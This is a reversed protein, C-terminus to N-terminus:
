HMYSFGLNFGVGSDCYNVLKERDKKRPPPPIYIEQAKIRKLMKLFKYNQKSIHVRGMEQFNSM